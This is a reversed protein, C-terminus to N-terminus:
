PVAVIPAGHMVDVQLLVCVGGSFQQGTTAYIMGCGYSCIFAYLICFLTAGIPMGLGNEGNYRFM